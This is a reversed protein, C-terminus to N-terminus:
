KTTTKRISFIGSVCPKLVRFDLSGKKDGKQTITRKPKINKGTDSFALGEDKLAGRV